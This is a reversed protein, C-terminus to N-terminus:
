IKLSIFRQLKPAKALIVKLPIMPQYNKAHSGSSNHVGSLAGVYVLSIIEDVDLKM